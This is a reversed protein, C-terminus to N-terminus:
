KGKPVPQPKSTSNHTKVSEKLLNEFIGIFLEPRDPLQQRREDLATLENWMQTAGEGVNLNHLGKKFTRRIESIRDEVAQGCIKTLVENRIEQLLLEAFVEEFGRLRRATKSTLYKCILENTEKERDEIY